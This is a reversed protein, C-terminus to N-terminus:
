GADRPPSGPGYYPFSGGSGAFRSIGDYQGQTECASLAVLSFSAVLMALITRM